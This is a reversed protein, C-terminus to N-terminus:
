ISRLLEKKIIQKFKIRLVEKVADPHILLRGNLIIGHALRSSKIISFVRHRPVRTSNSVEEMTKYKEIKFRKAKYKKPLLNEIWPTMSKVRPAKVILVM